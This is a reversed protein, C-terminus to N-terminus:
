TKDAIVDRQCKGSEPRMIIELKQPFTLTIHKRKGATCEKSMQQDKSAM